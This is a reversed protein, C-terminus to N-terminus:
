LQAKKNKCNEFLSVISTYLTTKAYSLLSAVIPRSNTMVTAVEPDILKHNEIVAIPKIGYQKIKQYTDALNSADCFVNILQNKLAAALKDANAPLQASDNLIKLTIKNLTKRIEVKGESTLASRLRMEKVGILNQTNALILYQHNQTAQETGSYNKKKKDSYVANARSKYSATANTDNQSM